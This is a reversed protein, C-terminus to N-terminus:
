REKKTKVLSTPKHTQLHSTLSKSFISPMRLSPTKMRLGMSRTKKAQRSSEYGNVVVELTGDVVNFLLGHIPVHSPIASSSRLRTVQNKLNLREDDTNEQSELAPLYSLLDSSLGLQQLTRALDTPSSTILSCDTHGLVVIETIGDAIASTLSRIVDNTIQNGANRLIFADGVNIHFIRIPNLRTDICTLIALKKRPKIPLKASYRLFTPQFNENGALLKQLM